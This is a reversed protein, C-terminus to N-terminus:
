CWVGAYRLGLRVLFPPCLVVGVWLYVGLGEYVTRNALSIGREEEFM